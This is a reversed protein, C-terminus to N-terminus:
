VQHRSFCGRGGVWVPHLTPPAVPMSQRVYTQGSASAYARNDVACLAEKKATKKKALFGCGVVWRSWLVVCLSVGKYTDLGGGADAYGRYGGGTSAGDRRAIRALLAGM